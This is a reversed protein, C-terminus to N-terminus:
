RMANFSVAFDFATIAAVDNETVRPRMAYFPYALEAPTNIHTWADLTIVGAAALTITRYNNRTAYDADFIASGGAILLGPKFITIDLAITANPAGASTAYYWFNFGEGGPCKVWRFSGDATNNGNKTIAVQNMLITPESQFAM